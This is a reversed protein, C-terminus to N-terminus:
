LPARTLRENEKPTTARLTKRKLFFVACCFKAAVKRGVCPAMMLCPYHPDMQNSVSPTFACARSLRRLGNESSHAELRGVAIAVALTGKPSTQVSGHSM